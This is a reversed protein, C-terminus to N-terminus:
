NELLQELMREPLELVALSKLCDTAALATEKDYIAEGNIYCYPTRFRLGLLIGLAVVAAVAASKWLILRVPRRNLRIAPRSGPQLPTDPMRETSLARFGAFLMA